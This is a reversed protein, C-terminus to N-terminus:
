HGVQQQAARNLFQEVFEDHQDHAIQAATKGHNNVAHIDVGARILLCLVPVSLKHQVAKHLCTDGFSTAKNVDAGAALLVKVTDVTTCIMLATVNACCGFSGVPCSVDLANDMVATAGHELLLQAVAAHQKTIALHLPSDGKIDALNVDTGAAILARSCEINGKSVAMHLATYSNLARMQVDAGNALLLEVIATDDSSSDCAMHLATYDYQSVANVAAGRQLLWEAAAVQEADVAVM